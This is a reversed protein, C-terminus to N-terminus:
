HRRAIQAPGPLLVDLECSPVGKSRLKNRGLAARTRIRIEAEDFPYEVQNTGADPENESSGEDAGGEVLVPANCSGPWETKVQPAPGPERTAASAVARDGPTSRTSDRCECLQSEQEQVRVLLEIRTDSDLGAQIHETENLESEEWRFLKKVFDCQRAFPQWRPPQGRAGREADRTLAAIKRAIKKETYNFHGIDTMTTRLKKLM